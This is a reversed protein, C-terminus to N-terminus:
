RETIHGRRQVRILRPLVSKGSFKERLKEIDVHVLGTRGGRKVIGSKEPIGAWVEIIFWELDKQLNEVTWLCVLINIKPKYKKHCFNNSFYQITLEWLLLYTGDLQKTLSCQKYIGNHDRVLIYIGLLKTFINYHRTTQTPCISKALNKLPSVWYSVKDSYRFWM